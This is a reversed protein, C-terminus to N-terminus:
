NGGSGELTFNDDSSGSGSSGGDIKCSSIGFMLLLAVLCLFSKKKTEM